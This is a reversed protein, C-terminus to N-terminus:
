KALIDNYYKKVFCNLKSKPNANTVKLEPNAISIANFANLEAGFGNNIDPIGTNGSSTLVINDKDHWHYNGGKTYMDVGCLIIESAGMVYALHMTCNIIDIGFVSENDQKSFNWDDRNQRKTIYYFEPKIKKVEAENFSIITCDRNKLGQYYDFKTVGGDTFCAYDIRKTKLVGSNCAMIIDEDPILSLDMDCLSTGSAIIWIRKGPHKDLFRQM